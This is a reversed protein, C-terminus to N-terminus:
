PASTLILRRRRGRCWSRYRRPINWTSELDDKCRVDARWYYQRRCVCVRRWYHRRRALPGNKSIFSDSVYNHLFVWFFALKCFLQCGCLRSDYAASCWLLHMLVRSEDSSLYTHTHGRARNRSKGPVARSASESRACKKELNIAYLQVM